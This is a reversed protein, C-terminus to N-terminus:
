LFLWRRLKGLEIREAQLQFIIAHIFSSKVTRTGRETKRAITKQDAEEVHGNWKKATPM